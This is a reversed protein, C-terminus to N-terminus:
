NGLNSFVVEPNYEEMNIYVNFVDYFFKKVDERTINDIKSPLKKRLHMDISLKRDELIEEIKKLRSNDHDLCYAVETVFSDFDKSQKLREHIFPVFLGHDKKVTNLRCNFLGPLTMSEIHNIGGQEDLTKKEGM